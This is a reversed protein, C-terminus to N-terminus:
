NKAQQHLYQIASESTEFVPSLNKGQKAESTANIIELEEDKTFGNTTTRAGIVIHGEAYESLLIRIVASVSLHDNKAKKSAKAKITKDVSLTTLTSM